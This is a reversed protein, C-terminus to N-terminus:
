KSRGKNIRDQQLSAKLQAVDGGIRWYQYFGHIIYAGPAAYRTEDSIIQGVFFRHSGLRCVKEIRIERVRTAFLPVPIRLTPSLQTKFALQDWVISEKRHNDALGFPVPFHSLPISSVALCGAEEVLRSAVRLERLGFGVRGNGLDGMLNMPFINGSSEDGVSVLCVPHPRIFTVWAARREVLTMRIDPPDNRRFQSYAELLFHAWLRVRPLCYNASGTVRFLIFNSDGISIVENFSLRIRGLIQQPNGGACYTLSVKRRDPQVFIQGQDCAICITLPATCATTHRLTVDRPAGMGHLWVSIEGSPDELGTTFEQPLSTDGFVIHKLVRRFRESVSM